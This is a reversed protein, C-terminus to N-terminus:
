ILLKAAHMAFNHYFKEYYDALHDSTIMIELHECVPIAWHNFQNHICFRVAIRLM